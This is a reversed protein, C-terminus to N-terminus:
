EPTAESRGGRPHNPLEKHPLDVLPSTRPRDAKLRLVDILISRLELPLELLEREDGTSQFRHAVSMMLLPFECQSLESFATKIASIGLGWVDRGMEQAFEVTLYILAKGLIDRRRSAKAVRWLARLEQELEAPPRSVILGYIMKAFAGAVDSPTAVERSHEASKSVIENAEAEVASLGMTAVTFPLMRLRSPGGDLNGLSRKMAMLAANFRGTRFLVTAILEWGRAPIAADLSICKEIVVAADEYEDIGYLAHVADVIFSVSKFHPMADKITNVGEAHRGLAFLSRAKDLYGHEHAPDLKLLCDCALVAEDHRGLKRLCTGLRCHAAVMDPRRQICRQFGNLAEDYRQLDYLAESRAMEAWTVFEDSIDGISALLQLADAPRKEDCLINALLLSGQVDSPVQERYQELQRVADSYQGLGRLALAKQLLSHSHTPDIALLQEENALAENYRGLSLLVRGRMCRNPVDSPNIGLIKDLASLALEFDRREFAAEAQVRLLRRSGPFAALGRAAVACADEDHKLEHLAFAYSWYSQETPREKILDKACQALGTFDKKRYCQKAEENLADLLPEDHCIQSEHLAAELHVRDFRRADPDGCRLVEFRSKMETTTYWHRLFEVFLRLHETRNDKVEICIRMLPEALECYTNRGIGSKSVFGLRTLELLQKAATQHSMLCKAAIDKITAPRTHRCLFEVLKRQAPALQRLRDQYYPTLDDVMRLFPTVLEDLSEKDLFDFLVVYVRHNGGALHHIARVRARGMPTALVEDLEPKGEHIAKKRLLAVATDFDLPKLYRIHFFGYFPSTQLQIASFM